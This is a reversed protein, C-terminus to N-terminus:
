DESMKGKNKIMNEYANIMHMNALEQAKKADKEKMAEMIMRHENNSAISREKTALTRKRIRAVYQHFDRLRHELQKSGSAIYLIEHFRNDLVAVQDFHEKQVHFDALYVNEELEEMAKEITMKNLLQEYEPKEEEDAKLIRDILYEPNAANEDVNVTITVRNGVVKADASIPTDKKVHGKVTFSESTVNSNFRGDGMYTAVVTYDGVELVDDMVAIGNLVDAYVTYEKAGTVEFKVIGTADSDVTVTFTVSNATLSVLTYRDGISSKYLPSIM